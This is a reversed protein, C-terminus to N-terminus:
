SRPLKEIKNRHWSVNSVYLIPWIIEPYVPTFQWVVGHKLPPSYTKTGLTRVAPIIHFILTRRDSMPWRMGFGTLSVKEHLHISPQIPSRQSTDGHEGFGHKFPPIQVKSLYLVASFGWIHLQGTPYLPRFQWPESHVVFGHKYPYAVMTAILMTAVPYAILLKSLNQNLVNSMM